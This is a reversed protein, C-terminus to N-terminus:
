YDDFVELTRLLTKLVMSKAKGYRNHVRRNGKQEHFM